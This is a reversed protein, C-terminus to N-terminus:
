LSCTADYNALTTKLFHLKEEREMSYTNSEQEVYEFFFLAKGFLNIKESLESKLIGDQYLLEAFMEIHMCLDHENCRERLFTFITVASNAYFFSSDAQFYSGYLDALKDEPEPGGDFHTGHIAKNLSQFFEEIVKLLYDQEYM